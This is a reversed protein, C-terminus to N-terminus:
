LVPGCGRRSHKGEKSYTLSCLMGGMLCTAVSVELFKLAIGENCGPAFALFESINEKSSLM